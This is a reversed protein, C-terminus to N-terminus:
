SEVLTILNYQILATINYETYTYGSIVIHYSIYMLYYETLFKMSSLHVLWVRFSDHISQCKSPEEVNSGYFKETVAQHRKM